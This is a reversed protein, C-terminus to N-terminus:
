TEYKYVQKNLLLLIANNTAIYKLLKYLGTFVFNTISYMYVM